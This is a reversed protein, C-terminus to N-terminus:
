RKRLARIAAAAADYMRLNHLNNLLSQGMLFEMSLYHIRKPREEHQRDRTALMRDVLRDRVVLSLAMLMDDPLADGLSKGLDFRLRRVIEAALKENAEKPEREEIM